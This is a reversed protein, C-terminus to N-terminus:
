GKETWDPRGIISMPPLPYPQNHKDVFGRYDYRAGPFGIMTWSVMDKNGGYIPDAFFGEMTNQLVLEFFTRADADGLDISGKELDQLVKDQDAPALASFVKGSFTKRCYDDLAAIGARYRETPLVPSQLGQQPLGKAFPGKMYHRESSGFFGALQRDIFVACGAEKGGISLDDAPVLRDVIAEITQAEDHTFFLWPGPRVPTPPDASFPKWPLQGSFSRALADPTSAFLISVATSALFQRRSLGSGFNKKM